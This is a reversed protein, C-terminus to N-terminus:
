RSAVEGSAALKDEFERFAAEGEIEAEDPPAEVVEKVEPVYHSLMSEIGNKLTVTSSPCGVCSGQLKLTVVGTEPDFGKYVIDGGDDQLAPRIRTELLEKICAVIEDDDESIATDSAQYAESELLVPEGSSFFDMIAAFVGPKVEAWGVDEVKTVTVFDSGFFVSAVGDVGFIRKALPSQLGERANAFSASGTEMVREALDAVTRPSPIGSRFALRVAKGPIFMLSQPNPTNQTQIFMTRRQQKGHVSKWSAQSGDVQPCLSPAAIHHIHARHRYDWSTTVRPFNPGAGSTSAVVPHAVLQSHRQRHSAFSSLTAHPSASSPYTASLACAPGGAATQAQYHVRRNTRSFAVALRLLADRSSRGAGTM